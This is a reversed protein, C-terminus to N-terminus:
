RRDALDGLVRELGGLFRQWGYQAGKFAQDEHARFGEQEMRLQTGTPTPTLTFTVVTDLGLARWTYALRSPADVTLVECEIIGDWKPMPDNRFTFRHGVKAQFDNALLWETLLGGETLARWVKAPAHPLHRDIVVSRTASHATTM